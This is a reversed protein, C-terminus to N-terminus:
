CRHWDQERKHPVCGCRPKILQALDVCPIQVRLGQSGSTSHTLGVLVGGPGDRLKFLCNGITCALEHLLAQDTIGFLWNTVLQM